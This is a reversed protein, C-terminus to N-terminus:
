KETKDHIWVEITTIDNKRFVSSLKGSSFLPTSIKTIDPSVMRAFSVKADVFTGDLLSCRETIETDILEGDEAGNISYNLMIVGDENVVIEDIVINGHHGFSYKDNYNVIVKVPSDFPVVSVDDSEYTYGIVEHEVRKNYDVSMVSTDVEETKAFSVLSLIITFIFTFTFIIKRM